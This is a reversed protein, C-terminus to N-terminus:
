ELLVFFFIRLYDHVIAGLSLHAILYACDRSPRSPEPKTLVEGNPLDYSASQYGNAHNDQLIFLVPTCCISGKGSHRAM